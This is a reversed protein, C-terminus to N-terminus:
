APWLPSGARALLPLVSHHFSRYPPALDPSPLHHQSEVLSPLFSLLLSVPSPPKSSEHTPSPPPHSCPWVVDAPLGDHPAVLLPLSLHPAVHPWCLFDLRWPLAHAQVPVPVPAAAAAAAAHHWCSMAHMVMLCCRWGSPCPCYASGILLVSSGKEEALDATDVSASCPGM